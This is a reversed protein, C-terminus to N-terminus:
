GRSSETTRSPDQHVRSPRRDRQGQRLEDHHCVGGMRLSKETDSPVQVRRWAEFQVRRVRKDTDHGASIRIFDFQSFSLFM